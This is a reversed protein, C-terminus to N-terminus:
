PMLTWLDYPGLGNKAAIVWSYAGATAEFVITETALSGESRAVTQWTTGNWRSLYLDFNASSPGRLWARLQGPAQLSFPHAYQGPQPRTIRGAIYSCGTCPAVPSPQAVTVAAATTAKQDASDLVTLSVTFTGDTRFTKSIVRGRASDVLRGEAFKWIYDVIPDNDRSGSADFTCTRGTCTATFSALPAPDSPASTDRNPAFLLRTPSGSGADRIKDPTANAILAAHIQAPTATPSEELLLAIAGAVHPAAVSTGRGVTIATNSTLWASTIDEGPAFLDLCPGWNSFSARTDNRTSAGVTIAQAVRAPSIGCADGTLNGAAIAYTVGAAISRRVAEDLAITPESGLSLNAVAPKRHNATVWDIGAIVDSVTGLANCGLVRVSHITVEKAVGWTRGGVTGAVQTGHGECDMTGRGDAIASFGSGVRGTFEEHTELVGTDIIYAHVGRGTRFYSYISDTPLHRQDIRDLGWTADPQAIQAARAVGDQEIFRVRPDSALSRAQELSMSAVFGNITHQYVRLPRAGHRNALQSATRVRQDAKTKANMGQLADATEDHLVVIYRGPVANVRQIVDTAHATSATCYLALALWFTTMSM